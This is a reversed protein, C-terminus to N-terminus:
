PQRVMVALLAHLARASKAYKLPCLRVRVRRPCARLALVSYTVPSYKRPSATDGAAPRRISESSSRGPAVGTATTLKAVLRFRRPPGDFAIPCDIRTSL